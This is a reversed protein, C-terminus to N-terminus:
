AALAVLSTSLPETIDQAIRQPAFTRGLSAHRKWPETTKRRIRINVVIQPIQEREFLLGLVEFLLLESVTKACTFRLPTVPM